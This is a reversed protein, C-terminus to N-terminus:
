DDLSVDTSNDKWSTDIEFTYTGAGQNVDVEYLKGAYYDFSQNSTTNTTIFVKGETMINAISYYASRKYEMYKPNNTSSGGVLDMDVRYVKSRGSNIMEAGETSRLAAGTASDYFSIGYNTNNNIKIYASSPSFVTNQWNATSIDANPEKDTLQFPIVVALGEPTKPYQTVIENLKSSYKRFVPFIYYTGADVKFTTKATLAASYGITEGTISNNRLEVNNTGLNTLTITCNGGINKSIDYVNNNTGDTNANYFAYIKAFPYYELDSLRDKHEMYDEETVIFLVFDNSGQGFLDAKYKLGWNTASAPIGSILSSEDPSGKFAILRKLTNNRVKVSFTAENNFSVYNTFDVKSENSIVTGDSQKTYGEGYGEIVTTNNENKTVNVECATPLLCAGIIAAAGVAKLLKSLKM